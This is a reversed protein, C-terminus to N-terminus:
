KGKNKAIEARETATMINDPEIRDIVTEFMMYMLAPMSLFMLLMLIIVEGSVRRKGLRM